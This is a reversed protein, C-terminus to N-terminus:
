AFRAYIGHQNEAAVNTELVVNNPSSTNTGLKLWKIVANNSNDVDLIGRAYLGVLNTLNSTNSSEGITITKGKLFIENCLKQGNNELGVGSLRINNNTELVISYNPFGSGGFSQLGLTTTAQTGDNGGIQGIVGVYGYSSDHYGRVWIFEGTIGKHEGASELIVSAKSLDKAGTVTDTGNHLQNSDIWWGGIQGKTAYIGQDRNSGSHLIVTAGNSTTGNYGNHLSNQTIWWGGIKGEDATVKGSFIGDSAILVGDWTVRFRRSSPNQEEGISLPYSPQNAGITIYRKRSINWWPVTSDSLAGDMQMKLFGDDLDILMGEPDNGLWNSSYINSSNGDFHIRGRGDKGIFGTGDDKFAYSMAGHNFGYVGTNKAIVAHEQQTRSWDGLMVGSFTNDSEKRGAAFGSAVITGSDNDTIIDKGNWANLTGSQYKNEYCVIPQTWMATVSGATRMFQVAYPVAEPIYVGVPNLIPLDYQGNNPQIIRPPSLSQNVRTEKLEPRFNSNDNTVTPYILRWYGTLTNSDIGHDISSGNGTLNTTRIEFPNRYYGITGDSNYVVQTPGSIGNIMYSVQGNIYETGQKLPVPIYKVLDYDGFNTVRLELILITDMLTGNNTLVFSKVTANTTVNGISPVTIGSQQSIRGPAEYPEYYVWGERYSSYFNASSVNEIPDIVYQDDIKVFYTNPQYYYKKKNNSDIVIAAGAINISALGTATDINEFQGIPKFTLQKKNDASTVQRYMNGSSTFSWARTNTNYTYNHTGAGNVYYWGSPQNNSDPNTGLFTIQNIRSGIPYFTGSDAPQKVVQAQNAAGPVTAVYWSVQLESGDPWSIEEGNKGRLIVNGTLTDGNTTLDLANKNDSWNFDINYDSGNDGKTGFLLPLEARYNEGQYTEVDLLVTNNQYGPNLTKKISYQISAVGSLTQNPLLKIMTNETPVTWTISRFNNVNLVPKNAINPEPGFVAQLTRAEEVYKQNEIEEAANYLYYHGQFEDLCKIALANGNVLTIQSPIDSKNTFNLINSEALLTANNLVIAKVYEEALNSNPHFIIQLKNTVNNDTVDVKWEGDAQKTGYSLIREWHAGAYADPSAHGARYRYWRIEYKTTDIDDNFSMAKIIGTNEDKHIWRLQVVKTNAADLQAVANSTTQGLALRDYSTDASSCYIEATDQNFSELNAGVCVYPDKMWINPVLSFFTEGNTPGEIRTGSGDIFNNRQYLYLEMNTIPFDVYDGIDFVAEVTYYSIYNYPNGFFNASDFLIDKTWSGAQNPYKLTLRLLLGYNGSVTDLEDLSTSFQARIGLRTYGQLAPSFENTWIATHGTSVFDTQSIDWKHSLSTERQDNAWIGIPNSLDNIILNNSVDIMQSFPSQYVIPTNANDAKKGIIIKQNDYDGQPITVLVVENERYGTEQSYAYFKASGTSVLYQGLSSKSADIITADITEDFRVAEIKKKILIDIAQFLTESVDM